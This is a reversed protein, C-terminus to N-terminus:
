LFDELRKPKGEGMDYPKREKSAELRSGDMKLENQRWHV